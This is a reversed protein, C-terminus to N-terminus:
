SNPRYAILELVDHAVQPKSPFRASWAKHELRLLRKVDLSYWAVITFRGVEVLSHRDSERRGDIEVRLAQFAGAPVAIREWGKERVTYRWAPMASGPPYGSIKNLEPGLNGDGAALLYPAIEILATNGGLSHELFRPKLAEVVRSVASAGHASSTVAEEVIVGNSRLVRVTVESQRGRYMRDVFRYVWSTGPGPLPGVHAAAGKGTASALAITPQPLPTAPPRAHTGFSPLDQLLEKIVTRAAQAFDIRVRDPDALADEFRRAEITGNLATIFATNRWLVVGSRDSLKAALRLTPRLPANIPRMSFAPGLGYGEVTLEFVADGGEDAIEDFAQRGALEAAFEQRVIDKIDIRHESFVKKLAQSDPNESHMSAM